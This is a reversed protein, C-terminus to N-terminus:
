SRADATKQGIRFIVFEAPRLPAVGILCILRGNDLDNQTMTSRNCHVFFSEEPKSGLLAGSRWENYLFASVTETINAWLNEGNPEFVAWQTSRDISHELYIFYRRVNVYKWEPDSTATRAGWVRLGRNPFARLCNVGDPNLVQQQGTTIESEFRLAGRVIENAPAKWVGRRIDTRAYVGAMFGSPPLAIEKPIQDNGPRAAPNSVIVWPYYLAAYTSDMESRISRAQSVTQDKPTDLVAIRYRMREAHSILRSQITARDAYMAYGPSAIIAIDDIQELSLLAEDYTQAAALTSTAVPFVGDNGGTVSILTGGSTGCLGAYLTFANVDAGAVFALPNLLEDSRRSPHEKLVAGIYRPHAADFALGELAIVTGDADTITLALGVFQLNSPPAITNLPPTANTSGVWGEGQKRYLSVTAGAVGTAATAPLALADRVPTSAAALQATAGAARTALVLRGQPSLGAEATIGAAALLANIEEVTVADLNAVNGAGVGLVAAAFGLDPSPSVSVAAATGRADSGIVLKDGDQLRAYARRLQPNIREALQVPTYAGAPITARQAQGAITVTLVTDAALNVNAPLAAGTAEGGTGSFTISQAPGAGITLSLQDGNNLAFPPKRGELLAPLAPVGGVRLLTGDPASQLTRASAFSLVERTQVSCNLGSGPMRAVFRARTADTGGDVFANSRAVGDSAITDDPNTRPTFVRAVYLRAGENDFYARVAHALYNINQPDAVASTFTLDALGGYMREFEGFSTLVEPTGGIPGKRMPGVFATTSTGVGEISKPRFSVEEM